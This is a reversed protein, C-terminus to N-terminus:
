ECSTCYMRKKENQQKNEITNNQLQIPNTSVWVYPFRFDFKWKINYYSTFHFSFIVVRITISWFSDHCVDFLKLKVFFIHPACCYVFFSRNYATKKKANEILITIQHIWSKEKKKLKHKCLNEDSFWEYNNQSHSPNLRNSWNSKQITFM